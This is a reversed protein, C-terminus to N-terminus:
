AYEGNQNPLYSWEERPIGEQENLWNCYAVSDYWTVTNIPCDPELSFYKRYIFDKGAFRLFDDVTVQYCMMAFAHDISVCRQMEVGGKPGGGRDAEWPPSGIVTAGPRPIISLTKGAQTLYWNRNWELKIPFSGNKLRPWTQFTAFKRCNSTLRLLNQKSKFVKRLNQLLGYESADMTFLPQWDTEM